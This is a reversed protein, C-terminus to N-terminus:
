DGPMQYKYASDEKELNLPALLTVRTGKGSASDIEIKGGIHTLRERISFLGFGKQRLSPGNHSSADFGRGDDEVTLQINDNARALTVKILKARAHKAINIFLERVSRYLLVKTHDTLPKTNSCNSFSCELKHEECFREMLEELATEFGFTYLAPPSLDFTLTRTQEVVNGIHRAIDKILEAINEPSRKRLTELERKTFALIPGVSDHLAMAIKRREREEALILEATLLRLQKQDALIREEALKRESIDHNVRLIGIPKGNKDRQVAWKSMVVIQSGDRRTHILEGEWRDSKALDAKIEELPKPFVTKLLDNPNKGTAEEKTWGYTEVAGDNWFVINDNLDCVFIADNALDLLSAQQSLHATRERVRIELGDRSKRLEEEMRKCETIDTVATRCLTLNGDADTARVSELLVEFTTKDKRVLTIECSQKAGKKLVEQRHLYFRDEAEKGVFLRFPKKILNKREIGLMECGTLNAEIVLGNKDFTFYGVPAFDYLDSYKSRSDELEKQALRLKENQMELEIQFVRLEHLVKEEDGPSLERLKVIRRKLKSEAKARLEESKGEKANDRGM